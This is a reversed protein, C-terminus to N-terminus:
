LLVMLKNVHEENNFVIHKDVKTIHNLGGTSRRKWIYISDDWFYTIVYCGVDHNCAQYSYLLRNCVPCISCDM